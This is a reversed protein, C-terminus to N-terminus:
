NYQELFYKKLTKKSDNSRIDAPITNWLKSGIVGFSRGGESEKKYKPCVLSVKSHRNSRSGYDANRTLMQEMYQTSQGYDRNYIVCCRQIKIEDHLPLLNLAKFLNASRERTDM